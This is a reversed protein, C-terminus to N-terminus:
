KGNIMGIKQLWQAVDDKSRKSMNSSVALGELLTANPCLKQLDNVSRGLRGGGHTCFPIVSKGGLDYKELFTFLAMPMTGWWNPYGVFVADYAAMDKVEAALPPRADAQQEQKAEAVCDDYDAPYTKVTAIEFLDGGAQQQIQKAVERTNGGWSFYAILIKGKSQAQAISSLALVSAALFTMKKM